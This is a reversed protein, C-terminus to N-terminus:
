EAGPITTAGNLFNLIDAHAESRMPEAENDIEHLTGPYSKVLFHPAIGGDGKSEGKIANRASVSNVYTDRDGSLLVLGPIASAVRVPRHRVYLSVGILDTAFRPVVVPSLPRIPDVHPNEAGTAYPAATTLSPLTIEDPPLHRLGAGVVVNPAIGPAILVVAELEGRAAMGYAALGGTSWGIAARRPFKVPELAFRKWMGMAIKGIAPIRTRDMKGLSGGQGMYDFTIVRYGAQSLKEFLPAHNLMSDGLGELYLVNGRFKGSHPYYGARLSAWTPMLDVPVWQSVKECHWPSPCLFGSNAQASFADSAAGLTPLAMALALFAFRASLTNFM